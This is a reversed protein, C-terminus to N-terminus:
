SASPAFIASHRLSTIPISPCPKRRQHICAFQEVSAQASPTLAAVSGPSMFAPLSPAPAIRAVLQQFGGNRADLRQRAATVDRSEIADVIDAHDHSTAALGNDTIYAKLNEQACVRLPEAREL